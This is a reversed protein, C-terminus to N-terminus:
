EVLFYKMNVLPNNIIKHTKIKQYINEYIQLPYENGVRDAYKLDMYIKKKNKLNLFFNLFKYIIFTYEISLRDMKM